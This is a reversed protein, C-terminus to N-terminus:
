VHARGIELGLCTLVDGAYLIAMAVDPDNNLSTLLYSLPLRLPLTETNPATAGVIMGLLLGVGSIGVAVRPDALRSWSLKRIVAGM